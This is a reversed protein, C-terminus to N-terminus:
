LQDCWAPLANDAQRQHKISVQTKRSGAVADEAVKVMPGYNLDTADRGMRATALAREAQEKLNAASFRTALKCAPETLAIIRWPHSAYPSQKWQPSNIRELWTMATDLNWEDLEVLFILEGCKYRYSACDGIRHGVDTPTPLTQGPGVGLTAARILAHAFQFAENVAVM